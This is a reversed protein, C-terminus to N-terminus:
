KPQFNFINAAETLVFERIWDHERLVEELKEKSFKIEKGGEAFGRWDIVRVSASEVAMDIAEELSPDEAERGKRKAMQQKMQWEQFKKRSYVKVTKSQDGIITLYAGSGAGTPLVLELEVGTEAATSFNQKVIDFGM